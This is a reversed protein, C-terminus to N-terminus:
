RGGYPERAQPGIGGIAEHNTRSFYFGIVIGVTLNIFQLCISILALQTVSVEKNWFIISVVVAANVVVGAIVVFLAIRSQTNEWIKNIARQGETTRDEAETTKPALTLNDAKPVVVPPLSPPIIRVNIPVGAAASVLPDVILVSDPMPSEDIPEKDTM